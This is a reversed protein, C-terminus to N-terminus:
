REMSLQVIRYSALTHVPGRVDKHVEDLLPSLRFFYEVGKSKTIAMLFLTLGLRLPLRNLVQLHCSVSERRAFMDFGDAM